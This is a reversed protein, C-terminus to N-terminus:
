PAINGGAALAAYLRAYQAAASSWGFDKSMGNCQLRKWRGPDRFVALARRVAEMMSPVTPANFLFGSASGDDLAADSCDVITDALGGTAHAVPPTGYRQSYMQSLGCPEFRSPMLFVDAGAEILHALGEDFGIRAAIRLPHRAAAALMAAEIDRDGTGLAVLQAPLAALEDAAQAVLDIGKQGTFRSVVALLPVTGEHPLRMRRQLAQRNERKAELHEADYRKEILRDLAPDWVSTDIGNPIGALRASHARLLGGLGMGLADTQIERAYTASVTTISDSYVIGAKLFSIGGYYELGQVAFSSEPLGLPALLGRAFIGQFALNHITFL